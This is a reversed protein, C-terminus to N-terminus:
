KMKSTRLTKFLQIFQPLASAYLMRFMEETHAQILPVQLYRPTHTPFCEGSFLLDLLPVMHASSPTFARSVPPGASDALASFSPVGLTAQCHGLGGWMSAAHSLGGGCLHCSTRAPLSWIYVQRSYAARSPNSLCGGLLRPVDPHAGAGLYLASAPAEGSTGWGHLQM